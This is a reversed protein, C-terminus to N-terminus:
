GSPNFCQKADLSTGAQRISIVAKAALLPHPPPPPPPLPLPLPSGGWKRTEIEGVEQGKKKRRVRTFSGLRRERAPEWRMRDWGVKLPLFNRSM